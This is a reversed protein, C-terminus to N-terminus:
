QTIQLGARLTQLAAQYYARGAASESFATFEALQADNLEYYIFLLTNIQERELRSMMQQRQQELGARTSNIDGLGPLMQSLSDAAVGALALSIDAGAERLPLTRTLRQILRLRAGSATM